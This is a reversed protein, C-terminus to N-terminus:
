CWCPRFPAPPHCGGGWTRELIAFYCTRALTLTAPSIWPKIPSNKRNPKHQFSYRTIIISYAELLISCAKEPDTTNQFNDLYEVLENTFQNIKSYDLMVKTERTENSLVINANLTAFVPFHDSTDDYLIGSTHVSNYITAFFITLALLVLIKFVPLNQCWNFFAQLHLHM